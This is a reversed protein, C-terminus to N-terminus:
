IKEVDESINENQIRSVKYQASPGPAVGSFFFHLNRQWFGARARGKKEVYQRTKDRLFKLLKIHKERQYSGHKERV